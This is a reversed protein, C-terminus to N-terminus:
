PEEAEEAPPRPEEPSTPVPIPQPATEAKAKRGFRHKKAKPPKPSQGKRRRRSRILRIIVFIIVAWVLIALFNEVVFLVFSEIGDRANDIGNHFAEALREGFSLPANGNPDVRYVERLEINVTSYGILSDYKRLAGTLNEMEYETEALANELSIIDEMNEAKSLLDMLRDYKTKEVALRSETDAYQESVDEMSRSLWTQTCLTGAERCLAEFNEAPVRVTYSASRYDSDYRHQENSEFYGGLRAVLAELGAAADEFETTQLEMYANYILKPAKAPDTTQAEAPAEAKSDPAAEAEAPAADGSDYGGAAYGYGGDEMAAPAEVAAEETVAASDKPAAAGCGATFLLLLALLLSLFATRKM